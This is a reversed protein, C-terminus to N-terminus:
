VTTAVEVGGVSYHGGGSGRCQLPWRWEGLVTTAM